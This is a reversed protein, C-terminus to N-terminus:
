RFSDVTRRLGEDLSTWARWGLLKSALSPDVVSRYVDGPRPDAFVPNQDFGIISALLRFLAVVSTEIGTGINILRGGEVGGARVCADVVDTVFVYDRTQGGDGFVVPRKGQLMLNSFISVVGAEGLPDQRPGFVNSFAALVYDVGTTDKYYRFYDEVVKKSIGYPSDPHKAHSEKAPLRAGAGYIAGGSSAAVVRVAEVRKAGELVNLTGLINISADLMPDRASVAVSAQAALHFVLEPQFREMATVLADERIDLQHFQVHGRGRADALNGLHGSSLDDIVLVEWGEDILRDVLHSGIFGAGGTVLAKM